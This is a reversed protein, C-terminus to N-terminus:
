ASGAKSSLIARLEDGALVLSALLFPAVNYILRYALLAAVVESTDQRDTLALMAAEFVGIGGPAHSAIGLLVAGIYLTSFVPFSIGSHGPMLVFLAGIASAMEIAGLCVQALAVKRSPLRLSLAGIRLIKGDGLLRTFLLIFGVAGLACLRQTPAAQGSIAVSLSLMTAFGLALATWSLATVGAVEPGNLGSRSLLRYRVATGTFAHFGLTNSIANAVSGALWARGPSVRRGAITRVAVVDYAGLAMFSVGTLAACEGLAQASLKALARVIENRDLDGLRHLFFSLALAIVSAAM